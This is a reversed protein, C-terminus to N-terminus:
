IVSGELDWHSLKPHIIFARGRISPLIRKFLKLLDERWDLLDLGERNNQFGRIVKDHQLMDRTRGRLMCSWLRLTFALVNLAPGVGDIVRLLLGALEMTVPRSWRYALRKFGFVENEKLVWVCVVFSLVVYDLGKKMETLQQSLKHDRVNTSLHVSCCLSKRQWPGLVPWGTWGFMNWFCKIRVIFWRMYEGPFVFVLFIAITAAMSTPYVVSCRTDRIHAHATKMYGSASKNQSRVPAQWSHENEPKRNLIKNIPYRECLICIQFYFCVM